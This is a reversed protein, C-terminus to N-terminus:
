EGRNFEVQVVAHQIQSLPIQQTEGAANTLSIVDSEAATVRLELPSESDLTNFKVLHGIARRWHRLETLPRDVGPSSVELVFPTDESDVILDLSESLERSIDAILDLDVGGDRDVTVRVVERRGARTISFDEFDVDAKACVLIAADRCQNIPLGM